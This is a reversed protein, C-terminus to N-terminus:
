QRSSVDGGNKRLMRRKQRKGGETKENSMSRRQGKKGLDTNKEEHKVKGRSRGRPLYTRSKTDEGRPELREWRAAVITRSKGGRLEAAGARELRSKDPEM